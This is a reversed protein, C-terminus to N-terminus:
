SMSAYQDSRWIIKDLTLIKSNITCIQNETKVCWIMRSFCVLPDHFFKHTCLNCKSNNHHRERRGENGGGGVWAGGGGCGGQQPGSRNRRGGGWDFRRCGERASSAVDRGTPLVDLGDVIAGPADEGRDGRALCNWGIPLDFDRRQFPDTEGHEQSVADPPPTREKLSM